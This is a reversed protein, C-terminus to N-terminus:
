VPSCASGEATASRCSILRLWSTASPGPIARLASRPAPDSPNLYALRDILRNWIFNNLLTLGNTLRKQLRVNLSEFYSSGAQNNQMTVGNIPFEPYPLTLQQLAVTSGNLSSSNPLLGKFPNTVVSSLLNVTATDRVPSVSL